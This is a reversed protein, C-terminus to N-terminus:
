KSCEKCDPKVYSMQGSTLKYTPCLDVDKNRNINGSLQHGSRELMGRMIREARDFDYGDKVKQSELLRVGFNEYLAKVTIGNPYMEHGSPCQLKVKQKPKQKLSDM